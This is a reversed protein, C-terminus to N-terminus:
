TEDHTNGEKPLIIPKIRRPEKGKRGITKKAGRTQSDEVRGVESVV